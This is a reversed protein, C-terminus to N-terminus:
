LEKGSTAKKKHHSSSPRDNWMAPIDHLWAEHITADNTVRSPCTEVILM